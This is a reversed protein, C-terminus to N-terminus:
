PCNTSMRWACDADSAIAPDPVRARWPCFWRIALADQHLQNYGWGLERMIDFDGPDTKM